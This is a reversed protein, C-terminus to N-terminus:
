KSIWIKKKMTLPRSPDESSLQIEERTLQNSLIPNYAKIGIAVDGDAIRLKWSM